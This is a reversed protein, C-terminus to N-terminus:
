CNMTAVAALGCLPHLYVEEVDNKGIDNSMFHFLYYKLIGNLQYHLLAALIKLM